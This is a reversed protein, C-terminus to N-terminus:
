EKTSTNSISQRYDSQAKEIDRIIDLGRQSTNTLQKNTFEIRGSTATINSIIKNASLINTELGTIKDDRQRIADAYKKNERNSINHDIITISGGTIIAGIIFFIIAIYIYNKVM